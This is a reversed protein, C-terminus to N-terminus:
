KVPFVPVEFGEFAVKIQLSNDKEPSYKGVFELGNREGGIFEVTGEFLIDTADDVNILKIKTVGGSSIEEGRYNNGNHSM